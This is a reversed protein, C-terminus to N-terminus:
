PPGFLWEGAVMTAQVALNEDLVLLDADLGAAIEGKPLNLLRASNTSAMRIAREVPVGLLRVANQVAAEMTLTSGAISEGGKLVARGHKVTVPRAGLRYEGDPKGAAAMADTVLRLGDAGKVRYVLRMAVPDVHVGDCILECSLAPLDLVAGLAGPARHHLPAMANFVHTASRAGAQAADRAQQYNADTHGLSVVINQGALTEILELAGPLEPALTVVRTTGPAAALLRELYGRDPKKFVSPDMAGPRRPSLFPGELHAGLLTPAPSQAVAILATQLEELPAALATAVLGTTGHRAHFDAVAAIEDPDDTNCQAGGGGHVHSDIYGPVLWRDGLDLADETTASTVAAIRGSEIVVEGATTGQPCVIRGSRLRLHSTTM